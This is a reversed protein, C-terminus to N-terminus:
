ATALLARVCFICGCACIISLIVSVFRVTQRLFAPVPLHPLAARQLVLLDGPRGGMAMAGSYGVARVQQIAPSAPAIIIAAPAPAPAPSGHPTNEKNESDRHSCAERLASFGMSLKVSMRNRKNPSQPSNTNSSPSAPSAGAAVAIPPLPSLPPLAVHAHLAPTSPSRSPSLVGRMGAGLRKKASAAM